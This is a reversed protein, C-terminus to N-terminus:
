LPAELLGGTIRIVRGRINTSLIDATGRAVEAPLIARGIPASSRLGDQVSQPLSESMATLVFGPVVVNIRVHPYEDNMARMLGVLAAKSTSYVANAPSGLQGLSGFFVVSQAGRRIAARAFLFAGHLNTSLVERVDDPDMTVFLSDISTGACAVAADVHPPLFANISSEDRVDLGSRRSGAHMTWGRNKGEHVVAAGIGTAGGSVAVIM